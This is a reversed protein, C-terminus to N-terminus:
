SVESADGTAQAAQPHRADQTEHTEQKGQMDQTDQTDQPEASGRHMRRYASPSVGYMDMFAQRLTETSGFGCRRAVGSLPLASSSLLQAAHETRVARVYRAPTTGMQVEFLRALHRSSVGAARALAAPSLDDAPNKAIHGALKRIVPHDPPPGAVFMSVQAQNGPRQLYTVLGRAVSRALAAGNDEEVFALTLDLASTVGASTYVDGDKVYLPAPDVHVAPHRRALRAAFAWHTTVRRGDLLGSAALVSAGTCVSAVRRSAPALRRVHRVMGDAEAAEEHGYGGAVVLTDIRGTVTELAGHVALTFGATGVVPRGKPSVLEVRYPPVAGLTNAADFTEVVCAIDLLSADHYGVVVVRRFAEVAQENAM